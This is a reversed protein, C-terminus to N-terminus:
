KEHQRVEGCYFPDNAKGMDKILSCKISMQEKNDEKETYLFAAVRYVNDLPVLMLFGTSDTRQFHKNSWHGKGVLEVNVLVHILIALKAWQSSIYYGKDLGYYGFLPIRSDDYSSLQNPGFKPHESTTRFCDLHISATCGAGHKGRLIGLTKSFESVTCDVYEAAEAMVDTVVVYHGGNLIEQFDKAEILWDPLFEFVSSEKKRKGSRRTVSHELNATSSLAM